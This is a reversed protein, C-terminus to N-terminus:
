PLNCELTDRSLNQENSPGTSQATRGSGTSSLCCSQNLFSVAGDPEAALPTALRLLRAKPDYRGERFASGKRHDQGILVLAEEAALRIKVDAYFISHPHRPSLCCGCTNFEADKRFIDNDLLIGQGIIDGVDPRDPTRRVVLLVDTVFGLFVIFDGDTADSCLLATM